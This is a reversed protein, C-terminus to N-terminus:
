ILTKLSEPVSEQQCSNNFTGNFKSKTDLMDRRIIGTAKLLTMAENDFDRECAQQLAHLLNTM